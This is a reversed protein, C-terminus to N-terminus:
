YPKRYDDLYVVKGKVEKEKFILTGSGNDHLDYEGKELIKLTYRKDGIVEKAEMNVDTFIMVMKKTKKEYVILDM